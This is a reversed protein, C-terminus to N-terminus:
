KIVEALDFRRLSQLTRVYKCFFQRLLVRKCPRDLLAPPVAPRANRHQVRRRAERRVGCQERRLPLHLGANANAAGGATPRFRRRSWLSPLRAFLIPPELKVGSGDSESRTPRVSTGNKRQSLLARFFHGQSAGM